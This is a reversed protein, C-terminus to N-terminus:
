GEGNPGALYLNRIDYCTGNKMEAMVTNMRRSFAVITLAKNGNGRFVKHGIKFCGVQTLSQDTDLHRTKIIM